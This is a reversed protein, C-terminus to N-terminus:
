MDQATQVINGSYIASIAADLRNVHTPENDLRELLQMMAHGSPNHTYGDMSPENVLPPANANVYADGQKEFLPLEDEVDDEQFYPASEYTLPPATPEELPASPSYLYTPPSNPTSHHSLPYTPIPSFVVNANPLFLTTPTQPSPTTWM